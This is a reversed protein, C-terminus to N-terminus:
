VQGRHGCASNCRGGFLVERLEHNRAGVAMATQRKAFCTARCSAWPSRALPLSNNLEGRDGVLTSAITEQVTREKSYSQFLALAAREPADDCRSIRTLNATPVGGRALMTTMMVGAVQMELSRHRSAPRYLRKNFSAASSSWQFQVHGARISPCDHRVTDMAWKSQHSAIPSIVHKKLGCTDACAMGVELEDGATGKDKIKAAPGARSQSIMSVASTPQPRFVGEANSREEDTKRGIAGHTRDDRRYGQIGPIRQFAAGAVQEL